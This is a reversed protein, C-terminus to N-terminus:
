RIHFYGACINHTPLRRPCWLIICRSTFPNKSTTCYITEVILPRYVTLHNVNEDFFKKDKFVEKDPDEKENKSEHELQMIVARVTKNDMCLFVPAISIVMKILFISMFLAAISNKFIRNKM